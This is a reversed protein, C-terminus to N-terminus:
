KTAFRDHLKCMLAGKEWLFHTKQDTWNKSEPALELDFNWLVRALMVRIEQEALNRGVCNRPGVNFPQVTERRDNYWPSSPNTKAEPLWREPAFEQPRHFNDPHSYAALQSLLSKNNPPIDYGSIKTIGHSPTVRPMGTPVPPYHRFAEQFCALMYPLQSTASTFTIETESQFASRVEEAVKRLVNPTQLLWYTIGSLITATTESGATILTSANAVLEKDNLGQKEGRNRLLYDMFDGRGHLARNDLRKRVTTEAHEEKKDRAEILSQPTFAMLIKLLMPYAAGAELYSLLKFAEFTISITFHYERHRLGGFSEGFALDGIIDFTTFNYWKVMDTSEGTASVERLREIFTDIYGRVIPEQEQLGKPSFAPLMAKRYRAHDIENADFIDPRRTTSLIFRELQNPRHDYIDRWAQETIFSVENPSFRVANGYKRHYECMQADFVGRISAIQRFVPFAIWLRPGPIYNLPHFFLNWIVRIPISALLVTLVLQVAVGVSIANAM